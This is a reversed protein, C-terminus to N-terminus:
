KIDTKSISSSGVTRWTNAMINSGKFSLTISAALPM